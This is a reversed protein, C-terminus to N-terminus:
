EKTEHLTCGFDDDTEIYDVYGGDWGTKLEITVKDGPAIGRCRGQNIANDYEWNTTQYWHKCTKCTKCKAFEDFIQDIKSMISRPKGYADKDKRFMEKAQDRNM